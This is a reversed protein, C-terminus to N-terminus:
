FDHIHTTNLPLEILSWQSSHMQFWSLKWFGNDPLDGIYVNDIFTNNGKAQFYNVSLFWDKYKVQWKLKSVEDIELRLLHCTQYLAGFDHLDLLPYIHHWRISAM